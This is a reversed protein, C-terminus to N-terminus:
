AVATTAEMRWSRNGAPLNFLTATNDRFIAQHQEETLHSAQEAILQRSKPWTSDTHPFDSAWLLHEYPFLNFTHYATLDDQFTAYVNSRIYESPLKSLGKVIGGEANMRAAHDMRYMYHPLWGADSEAVVLKLNPHREFVGGLVLLGVVDQIARIIGLFNNMPHGRTEAHMSGARSTLIHFCIPLGLDSACEWLADYDTHDYDEHIPDGPMMMGVFGMDKAQQFDAIAADVSLVATQAMGFIRDPADACMEALWRNYAWMCADKYEADRHMCIGMGVSAYILEAAIGDQDMFPVREAGRYAAPRVDSFTMTKARELRERPGFGAGDIFGLPVPRKMGPVIFADTGDDQRVIRPADDRYKPDIHDVYCDAPECVHGDASIIGAPIM